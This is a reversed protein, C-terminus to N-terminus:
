QMIYGLFGVFNFILLMKCEQM